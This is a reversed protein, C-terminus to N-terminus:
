AKSPSGEKGWTSLAALIQIHARCEDLSAPPCCLVVGSLTKWIKHAEQRCPSCSEPQRSVFAPDARRRLKICSADRGLCFLCFHHPRNFCATAKFCGWKGDGESPRTVRTGKAPYVSAGPMLVRFGIFTNAETQRCALATGRKRRGYRSRLQLAHSPLLTALAFAQTMFDTM